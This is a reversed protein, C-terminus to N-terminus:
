HSGFHYRASELIGCAIEDFDLGTTQIKLHSTQEYYSSRAELLENIASLPDECQLLPRNNNRSTRKLIEEPDCSLWVVFGLQQLLPRNAPKCVMGGGTAIIHHQTKQHILTELLQTELTRFADEGSHAFIKSISKQTDQEIVQDTDVLHYGLKKGLVRGITSKGCGMFGVLVINHLAQQDPHEIADM